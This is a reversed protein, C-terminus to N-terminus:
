KKVAAKLRSGASIKVRKGAPITLPEGTRPNRGTRAATDVIEFVAFGPLSIKEGNEIGEVVTSFFADLVTNVSAQSQGTDAAVKAVLESKTIAM